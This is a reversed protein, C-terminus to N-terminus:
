VNFRFTIVDGDQVVYDKGELRVLGLERARALSGARLLDDYAVVEARIFGREFDSHIVGGAEPARAGAPITWARVEKEGATFFTRWGLLRYASRIVRDLATEELGYAALYASREEPPLARLEAELAASLVIVEAGEAEARAEIARVHSTPTGDLYSAEDVNAIYLVPKQSLLFLERLLAQEEEGAPFTRAPRGADLHAKLRELGELAKKAAEDGSKAQRATRELRRGVTELDALILETEIVDIDRVPDVSGFVHTVNPDDFARVVHLIADVERIHHLFQNGLGEGRSAGEVLGAIDVFRFVAPTTKEPRFLAALADLRPDPVAAIGVNPEITCFPYNAAEAGAGTLANFLTSKGVNPLGVIGASRSM